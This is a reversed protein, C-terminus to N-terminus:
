IKKVPIEHKRTIVIDSTAGMFIPVFQERFRPSKLRKSVGWYALFTCFFSLLIVMPEAFFSVNQLVAATVILVAVPVLYMWMSAVLLHQEPIGIKVSQGVKLPSPTSIRLHEPKPTFAKAVLGTGCSDNAACSGCTTKVQTEIWAFGQETAVVKGIEEIM